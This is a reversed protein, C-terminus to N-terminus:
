WETKRKQHLGFDRFFINSSKKLDLPYYIVSYETIYIYIYIYINYIYIYIYIVSYQMISITFLLNMYNNSQM